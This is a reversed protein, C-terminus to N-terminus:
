GRGMCLDVAVEVLNILATIDRATAPTAVEILVVVIRRLFIDLDGLAKISPCDVPLEAVYTRRFGVGQGVQEHVGGEVCTKIAFVVCRARVVGGTLTTDEDVAALATRKDEGIGVTEEVDLGLLEEEHVRQRRVGADSVVVAAVFLITLVADVGLKGDIGALAHIEAEIQVVVVGSAIEAILRGGM